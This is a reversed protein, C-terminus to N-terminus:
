GSPTVPAPPPTLRLVRYVGDRLPEVTWGQNMLGVTIHGVKDWSTLVILYNSRTELLIQSLAEVRRAGHSPATITAHAAVAAPSKLGVVDTLARDNAYAIYGADHLAIRADLPVNTDIWRSVGFLENRTIAIGQAYVSLMHWSLVVAWAACAFLGRALWRRRTPSAHHLAVAFGVPFIPVLAYLYRYENHSVGIPFYVAYLVLIALVALIVAHGVRLRVLGIAGIVLPGTQVIVKIACMLVFSLKASLDQAEEAFFYRKANMTQPLFAGTEVYIWVLWPAAVLAVILADQLLGRIEGTRWRMWARDIGLVAALLGLEPRVFPMLGLLVPLLPGRREASLAMGWVVLAMALGTEIGNLLHCSLFGSLAGAILLHASESRTLSHRQAVFLLGALYAGAALWTALAGAWPLPFLLGLAAVLLLHVSSTAGVLPSVGYNPDSGRLLVDANHLTIYTDDLPFAPEGMAVVWVLFAVSLVGALVLYRNPASAHSLPEAQVPATPSLM